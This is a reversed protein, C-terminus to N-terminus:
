GFDYAEEEQSQDFERRPLGTIPDPVVRTPRHGLLHHSLEELLTACQRRMSRAPNLLVMLFDEGPFTFAFGDWNVSRARVALSPEVFDEPYFVHAPVVEALRWPNLIQT